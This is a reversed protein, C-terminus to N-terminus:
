FDDEQGESKAQEVIGLWDAQTKAVEFEEPGIWDSSGQNVAGTARAEADLVLRAAGPKGKVADTYIREAAAVKLSKTVPNGQQLFERQEDGVEAIYQALTKGIKKGSPNGSQGKKWKTHEPPKGYGGKKPPEKAM